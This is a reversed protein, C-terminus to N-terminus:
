DPVKACELRAGGWIRQRCCFIDTVVAFLMNVPVPFTGHFPATDVAASMEATASIDASSAHSVALLLVGFGHMGYM